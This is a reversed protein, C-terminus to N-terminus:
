NIMPTATKKNGMKIMRQSLMKIFNELSSDDTAFFYIFDETFIKQLKLASVGDPNEGRVVDSYFLYYKELSYHM